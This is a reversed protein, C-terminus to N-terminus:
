SLEKLLSNLIAFTENYNAVQYTPIIGVVSADNGGPMLADGFYVCEDVNWGYAKTLELVNYGKNKGSEFIDLVTTGGMAVEINFDNKLREVDAHLDTLVKARIKFHPDFQEKIDVKEHHGIFSFSIQCGRDETLDNEDSVPPHTHARAKEIFAYIAQKQTDTLTRKWLQTGDPKVAFNGSQSLTTYVIPDVNGFRGAIDEQKSGSVIVIDVRKSLTRLIDAHEPLIQSKSRTLTNDVDFFFHKYTSLNNAVQINM